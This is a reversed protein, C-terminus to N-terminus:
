YIVETINEEPIYFQKQRQDWALFPIRHFIPRKPIKIRNKYLKEFNLITEAQIYPKNTFKELEELVDPLNELCYDEEDIIELSDKLLEIHRKEIKFRDSFILCDYTSFVGSFSDRNLRIRDVDGLFHGAMTYFQFESFKELNFIRLIAKEIVKAIIFLECIEIENRRAAYGKPPLNLDLINLTAAAKNYEIINSFKYEDQQLFAPIKNLKIEIRRNKLFFELRADEFVIIESAHDPIIQEIHDSFEQVVLNKAEVLLSPSYFADLKLFM